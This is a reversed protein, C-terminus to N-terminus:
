LKKQMLVANLLGAETITQNEDTLVKVPYSTQLQYPFKGPLANDVFGMIDGVTHSHNFKAVLRTGDHLRIQLSTVPASTDVALPPRQKRSVTTTSSTTTGGLSHGEGSFPKLVPPPAKYEEGKRDEINLDIEQDRQALEPPAVGRNIAELFASNAPDDYLRLEGDDVTFGQKWFILKRTIPAEGSAPPPLGGGMNRKASDLVQDALDKKQPDQVLVGSSKGGTYYNQTPQEQEGGFDSFGVVGKKKSSGIPQAQNVPSPNVQRSDPLQGGELFLSTAAEIQWEHSELWRRSTAADFGTLDQFQKVLDQTSTM